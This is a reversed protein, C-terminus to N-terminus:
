RPLADLKIKLTEFVLEPTIVQLCRNDSCPTKRHNAASVCPSCALGAFIPTTPGLSGYLAPTEPGFIVFTHMDTISAFHAPGSDNTLMFASVAYLHPLQLFKVGGTFNLCRPDDVRDALDQAGPSEDPAGTLLVIVGQHRALIMKIVEAYSGRDWRRQPLLDSANSNVLVVPTRQPDFDPYRGAIIELVKRKDAESIKAKAIQIEADGIARKSYPLEEKESLLADVLAIFGKAIHQHPNYAVKHSLFDGRYLGENHFSHFGVRNSAGSVATLLATFRSFLELDIVSDIKKRRSWFIFKLSSWALQVLGSEDICFINQDRVTGLLQLSVKNKSFILFFLEGDISKQLKRMAPDVIIASGMESLEILLVNKARTKAKPLVLRVLKELLTGAACLPVGVFYDIKRMTDVNM